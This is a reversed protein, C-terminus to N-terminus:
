AVLWPSNNTGWSKWSMFDHCAQSQKSKNTGNM